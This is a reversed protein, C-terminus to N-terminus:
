GPDYERVYISVQMLRVGKGITQGVGCSGSIFCRETQSAQVFTITDFFHGLCLNPNLDSIIRNCDDVAGPTNAPLGFLNTDIRGPSVFYTFSTCDSYDAAVCAGAM